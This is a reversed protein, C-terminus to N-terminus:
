EVIQKQHPALSLRSPAAYTSPQSTHYHVPAEVVQSFPNNPLLLSCRQNDIVQHPSTDVYHTRRPATHCPVDDNQPKPADDARPRIVGLQNHHFLEPGDTEKCAGRYGQSTASLLSPDCPHPQWSSASASTGRAAGHRGPALTLPPGGVVEAMWQYSTAEHEPSAYQPCESFNDQEENTYECQSGSGM